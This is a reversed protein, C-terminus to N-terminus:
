AESVFCPYEALMHDLTLHATLTFSFSNCYSIGDIPKFFSFFKLLKQINWHCHWSNRCSLEVSRVNWCVTWLVIVSSVDHYCKQVVDKDFHLLSESFNMM